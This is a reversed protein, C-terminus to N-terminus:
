WSMGRERDQMQGLKQLRALDVGQFAAVLRDQMARPIEKVTGDGFYCLAKLTLEPNFQKGFIAKGAVLAQSLSVSGDEIIADIDIYDKIEARNQVVAAKTGALDLTSAVRIGNAGIVDGPRLRNLDPLGFFSVAM